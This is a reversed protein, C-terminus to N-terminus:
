IVSLRPLLNPGNSCDYSVRLIIISNLKYVEIDTLLDM